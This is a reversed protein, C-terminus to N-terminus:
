KKVSKIFFSILHKLITLFFESLSVYKYYRLLVIMLNKFRNIQNNNTISLTNHNDYFGLIKSLYVLRIKPAMSLWLEYDQCSTLYPDFLYKRLLANSVTCSSTSLFNRLFLQSSLSYNKKFYSSLKINSLESNNKYTLEDHAIFNVTGKKNIVDVVNELKNPLWYDDADLFSIWSSTCKQIAINRAHGPGSHKVSIIQIMCDFSIKNLFNILEYYSNDPSNDNVFVIEDPLYTQKFISKAARIITNENRHFPCVVSISNFKKM